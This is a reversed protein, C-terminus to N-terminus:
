FNCGMMFLPNAKKKQRHVFDIISRPVRCQKVLGLYVHPTREPLEFGLNFKDRNSDDSLMLREREENWNYIDVPFYGERLHNAIVLIGKQNELVVSPSSPHGFDILEGKQANVVQPNDHAYKRPASEATEM